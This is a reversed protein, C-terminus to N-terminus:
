LEWLKAGHYWDKDMRGSPTCVKSYWPTKRFMDKMASGTREPLRGDNSSNADREGLLRSLDSITGGREEEWRLAAQDKCRTVLHKNKMRQAIESWLKWILSNGGPLLNEKLSLGICHQALLYERRSFELRAMSYLILSRVTSDEEDSGTVRLADDFLQESRSHSRLHYECVGWTHFLRALGSLGSKDCTDSESSQEAVAQAGRFLISQAEAFHKRKMEFEAFLRYPKASRGGVRHCAAEYLLRAKEDDGNDAQLEAWQILLSINSPFLRAAKSFVIHTTEYTGHIEEMRAWSKFVNIWKDGAYSRSYQKGKEDVLSSTAFVNNIDEELSLKKTKKRYPSRKRRKKEYRSIADRYVKRAEQINGESEELQALAIVGQAHMGGNVELSQRLLTRADRTYGQAYSVFSLSTYFFSKGWHPAHQLGALYAEEALDLMNADMYVDGLAHYLRHNHPCHKIGEKIVTLAARINGHTHELTGLAHYPNPFTPDRKTARRFFKKPPIIM